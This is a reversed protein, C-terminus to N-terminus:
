GRQQPGETPKERYGLSVTHDLDHDMLQKYASFHLKRQKRGKLDRSQRDKQSEMAGGQAERHPIKWHM